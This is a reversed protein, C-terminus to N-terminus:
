RRAAGEAAALVNPILHTEPDHDEGLADTAGAVNFYRLSVSASGTPRATGARARGRVDAEDRRLPQDPPAPRGGPDADRGPRRLRRRDLSFVLRGVGAARAAELLAVGGAVNDRYYRAPNASAVRRGALPRRLPPDGRDREDDLLARSPPRTPTRASARPPARRSRRGRPRDDPRRPRRRRPGATSCRTSRSRASTAPAAPSWSRTMRPGYPSRDRRAAGRPDGAEACRAPRRAVANPAAPTPAPELAPASAAARRGAGPEPEAIPAAAVEAAAEARRPEAGRYAM